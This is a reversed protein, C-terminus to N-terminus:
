FVVALIVTFDHYHDDISGLTINVEDAYHYRPRATLQYKLTLGDRPLLDSDVQDVDIDNDIIFEELENINEIYWSYYEKGLKGWPNM